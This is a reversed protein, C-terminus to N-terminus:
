YLQDTFVDFTALVAEEPLPNNGIFNTFQTTKLTLSTNERDTTLVPFVNQRAMNSSVIPRGVPITKM